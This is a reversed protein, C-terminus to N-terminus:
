NFLVGNPLILWYILFSQFLSTLWYNRGIKQFTIGCSIAFFLIVLGQVAGVVGSLSGIAALFSAYLFFPLLGVLTNLVLRRTVHAKEHNIMGNEHWGIWFGLATIPSFIFAWLLRHNRALVFFWGTRAFFATMVIILLFLGGAPLLRRDWNLGQLLNIRGTTGPMWGLQYLTFLLIGYGGLFSIYILNFAPNGVPLLFILGGLLAGTILAPVWLAIKILFFKRPEQLKLAEGERELVKGPLLLNLGLVSLFLGAISGGWAYIRKLSLVPDYDVIGPRGIMQNAGLIVEEIIVPAYIEYNHLVGPVLIWKRWDRDELSGEPEGPGPSKGTLKNILLSAAEPTIVDDLNGSILLINTRPQDPGLGQVWDLDGDSVGTFVEAQLNQVLNVQTGLLILGGWPQDLLVASQLAARAGLSHGAILIQDGRLNGKELLVAGADIIQWALRDTEANDFELGGPSRGHGSFDFTLVHYGEAAFAEVLSRLAIQDSGFGEALIVGADIKGPYYTGLLRDGGREQFRLDEAPPLKNEQLFLQCASGLLLILGVAFIISGSGRKM